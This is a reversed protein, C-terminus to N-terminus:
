AQFSWAKVVIARASAAHLASEYVVDQLLAGMAALDPAHLHWCLDWSRRAEEDAPLGVRAGLSALAARDAHAWRDRQTEHADDLKFLVIRFIM